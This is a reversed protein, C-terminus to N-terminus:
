QRLLQVARRMRDLASEPPEGVRCFMKGTPHRAEIRTLARRLRRLDAQNGRRAAQLALTAAVHPASYALSQDGEAKTLVANVMDSQQDAATLLDIM